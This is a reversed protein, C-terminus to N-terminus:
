QKTEVPVEPAVFFVLDDLKIPNVLETGCEPCKSNLIFNPTYVRGNLEDHLMSLEAQSLYKLSEFVDDYEEETFQVYQGDTPDYVYMDHIFLALTALYIDTPNEPNILGFVNIARAISPSGFDYINKTLSSEVRLLEDCKEKVANMHKVDAHHTVIDDYTKKIDENVKDMNLLSAINFERTFPSNCKSCSMDSATLPGSSACAVAYTMIDLDYYRFHNIFDNYTMIVVGKENKIKYNVGDVYHSYCLSAKKVIASQMSENEEGRAQLLEVMLAGRFTVFDGTLPVPVSYKSIYPTNMDQVYRLKTESKNLKKIPLVNLEKKEVKVLQIKSSKDLKRKQEESFEIKEADTEPVEIVVTTNRGTYKNRLADIERDYRKSMAEELEVDDLGEEVVLSKRRRTLITMIATYEADVSEPPMNIKKMDDRLKNGWEELSTAKFSEVDVSEVPTSIDEGRSRAIQAKLSAIEDEETPEPTVDQSTDPELFVGSDDDEEVVTEKEDEVNPETVNMTSEVVFPKAKVVNEMNAAPATENTTAADNEEKVKRVLDDLEAM